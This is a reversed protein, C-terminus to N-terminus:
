PYRVIRADSQDVGTLEVPDNEVISMPRQRFRGKITLDAIILDVDGGNVLASRRADIAPGQPNNIITVNRISVRASTSRLSIVGVTEAMDDHQTGNKFYCNAIEVDSLGEHLHLYAVNAGGDSTFDDVAVFCTGTDFALAYPRYVPKHWDAEILARCGSVSLHRGRISFGGRGEASVNRMDFGFSQTINGCRRQTNIIRGPGHLSCDRIHHESVDIIGFPSHLDDHYDKALPETFSVNNGDVQDVLLMEANPTYANPSLNGSVLVVVSGAKLRSDTVTTVSRDGRAPRGTIREVNKSLVDDNFLRYRVGISFADCAQKLICGNLEIRVGTAKPPFGISARVNQSSLGTDDAITSLEYTKNEIFRLTGGGQAVLFDLAANIALASDRNGNPAGFMEPSVLKNAAMVWARTRNNSYTRWSGWGRDGPATTTAVFIAGARDNIRLRTITPPITMREVAVFQRVDLITDAYSSNAEALFAAALPLAAIADRRTPLQARFRTM